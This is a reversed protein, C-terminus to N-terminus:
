EQWYLIPYGGGAPMKWPNDANNGFLWGLGNSYTSQKKLEKITKNLGNVNDIDPTILHIGNLLMGSNAFNGSVTSDDDYNGIIRHLNNGSTDGAIAENAAACQTVTGRGVSGAIGGVSSYSASTINMDSYCKEITGGPQGSSGVVSGAIGGVTSTDHASINGSSHANSIRGDSGIVYGAIGGAFLYTSSSIDGSFYCREITSDVSY